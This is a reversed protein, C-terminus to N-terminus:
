RRIYESEKANDGTIFGKSFDEFNAKLNVVTEETVYKIVQEM